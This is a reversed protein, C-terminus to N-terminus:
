VMAAMRRPPLQEPMPRMDVGAAAQGAAGGISHPGAGQAQLEHVAQLV